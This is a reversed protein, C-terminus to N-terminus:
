FWLSLYIMLYRPSHAVAHKKVFLQLRPRGIVFCWLWGSHAYISRRGVSCCEPMRIAGVIRDDVKQRLAAGSIQLSESKLGALIAAFVADLPLTEMMVVSM